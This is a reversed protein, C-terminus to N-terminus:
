KINFTVWDFGDNFSKIWPWYEESKVPSRNIGVVNFGNKKLDSFLAQGAFSGSGLILIKM